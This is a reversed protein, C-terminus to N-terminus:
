SLKKSNSLGFCYWKGEYLLSNAEVGTDIDRRIKKASQLAKLEQIIVERLEGASAQQELM